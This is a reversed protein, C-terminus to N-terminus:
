VGIFEGWVFSVAFASAALVIVSAISLVCMYTFSLPDEGDDIGRLLFVLAIATLLWVFAPIAFIAIVVLLFIGIALEM